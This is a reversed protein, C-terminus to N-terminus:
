TLAKFIYKAEELFAKAAPDVDAPFANTRQLIEEAASTDALNGLDQFLKGHSLPSKRVQKFRATLHEKAAAEVSEKTSFVQEPGFGCPVIAFQAATLGRPKGFAARMQGNKKKEAERRMIRIVDNIANEDKRLKATSLYDKLHVQRLYPATKELDKLKSDCAYENVLIPAFDVLTIESM